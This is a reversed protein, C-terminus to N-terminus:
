QKRIGAAHIGTAGAALDALMQRAMPDLAENSASSELVSGIVGLDAKSGAALALMLHRFVQQTINLIDLENQTM